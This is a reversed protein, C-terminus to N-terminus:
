SVSALATFVFFPAGSFLFFFIIEGM